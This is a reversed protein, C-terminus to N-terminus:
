CSTTETNNIMVFSPLLAQYVMAVLAELDVPEAVLAEPAEVALAESVVVELAESVAV